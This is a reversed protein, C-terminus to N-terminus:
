PRHSNGSARGECVQQDHNNVRQEQLKELSLPNELLLVMFINIIAQLLPLTCRAASQSLQPFRPELQNISFVVCKERAGCAM